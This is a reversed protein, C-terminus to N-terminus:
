TRYSEATRMLDQHSADLLGLANARAPCSGTGLGAAQLLSLWLCTECGMLQVGTAVCQVGIGAALSLSGPFM